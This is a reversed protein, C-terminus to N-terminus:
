VPSGNLQWELKFVETLLEQADQRAQSKTWFRHEARKIIFISSDSLEKAVRDIYIRDSYEKRLSKSLRRFWRQWESSDTVPSHIIATGWDKLEFSLGCLLGHHPAYIRAELEKGKSALREEWIELFANRYDELAEITPPKAAQSNTGEYFFELTVQCLDRVLDKQAESLEYLEFVANDLEDQMMRWSPTESDFLPLAESRTMVQEVAELIRSQLDPNDPFHVPLSLHEEEHIEYHWFGM